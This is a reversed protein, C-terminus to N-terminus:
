KIRPEHGNRATPHLVDAAADAGAGGDDPVKAAARKPVGAVGSAAAVAPEAPRRRQRRRQQQQQWRWRRWICDLSCALRQLLESVRLPFLKAPIQGLQITICTALM